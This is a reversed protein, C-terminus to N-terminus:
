EIELEEGGEVLAQLDEFSTVRAVVQAFDYLSDSEQRLRNVLPGIPDAGTAGPVDAYAGYFAFYAQNLKRIPYGNAVFLQRREEMYAEAAEVKGEALLEDVRIRTEAMEARFNFSQPADDPADDPADAMGDAEPTEPPAFQPYYREIVMEGIETGVISAVTENITRMQPGALYRMGLPRLTLWHHMWEHAVVDALFNINSTEIIMSPYMGLGGIPVVLASLDLEEAVAEELADREPVTLDPLLTVNYVQRIEDRPSVVLVLPLPTMRMKLPPWLAGLMGFGEEALVMSVQEEMIAEAVPQRRLLEARTLALEQQLERTDADPDEITFDVYAENIQRQLLQSERLLELYSLVLERREDEALYRHGGVGHARAKAVIAEAGWRLFDFERLGVLRTLRHREVQFAPWEPAVTVILLLFLLLLKLATM